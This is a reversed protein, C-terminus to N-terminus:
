LCNGYSDIAETRVLPVLQLLRRVLYKSVVKYKRSSFFEALLYYGINCDLYSAPMDYASYSHKHYSLQM